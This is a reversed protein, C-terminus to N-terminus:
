IVLEDLREVQVDPGQLKEPWSAGSRNVWVTRMGLRRAPEIDRVPDDGIHMARGPSCNALSLAARFMAPDPKAAGARVADVLHHFIGRLPTQEVDANGNTVAVLIHRQRWTALVPPVDVYPEVRNRAMRFRAVGEDADRPDYGFEDLLRRLHERRLWTLDHARHPQEHALQKRHERLSQLDHFAALRPAKSKLWGFLEEEARRIVPACPWLTDDLDITILGVRDGARGQGEVSTM